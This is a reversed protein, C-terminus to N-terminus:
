LTEEIFFKQPPIFLPVSLLQSTPFILLSSFISKLAIELLKGHDRVRVCFRIFILVLSNRLMYAGRASPGRAAPPLTNQRQIM